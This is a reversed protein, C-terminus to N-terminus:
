ANKARVETHTHSAYSNILPFRPECVKRSVSAHVHYLTPRRNTDPNVITARKGLIIRSWRFQKPTGSNRWSNKQPWNTEPTTENYQFYNMTHLFTRRLEEEQTEKTEDKKWREKLKKMRVQKECCTHVMDRWKLCWRINRYKQQMSFVKVSIGRM